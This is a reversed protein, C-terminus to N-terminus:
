GVFAEGGCGARRPCGAGALGLVCNRGITNRRQRQEMRQGAGNRPRRRRRCHRGGGSRQARGGGGRRCGHLGRGRRPVLIKGFSQIVQAQVHLCEHQVYGAVLNTLRQREARGSMGAACAPRAREHACFHTALLAYQTLEAMSRVVVGLLDREARALAPALAVALEDFLEDVLDLGVGASEELALQLQRGGDLVIGDEFGAEM